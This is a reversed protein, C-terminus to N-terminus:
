KILKMIVYAFGAAILPGVAVGKFFFVGVMTGIVLASVMEPNNQLAIIGRGAVTATLIGTILTVIGLKTRFTEFLTKVDVSGDVLKSLIAATLIIVGINLGKNALMQLLIDQKLFKLILILGVSYIVTDNRGILGLILIIIAVLCENM